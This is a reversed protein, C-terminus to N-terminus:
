HFENAIEALDYRDIFIGATLLELAVYHRAIKRM